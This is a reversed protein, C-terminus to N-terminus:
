KLIKLMSTSEQWHKSSLVAVVVAILAMYIVEKGPVGAGICNPSLKKLVKVSPSAQRHGSSLAVVIHSSL